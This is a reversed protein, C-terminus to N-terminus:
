YKDFSFWQLYNIDKNQIFSVKLITKRSNKVKFSHRDSDCNQLQVIETLDDGGKSVLRKQETESSRKTSFGLSDSHKGYYFSLSHEVISFFFMELFVYFNPLREALSRM